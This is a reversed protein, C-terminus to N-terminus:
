SYTHEAQDPCRKIIAFTLKRHSPDGWGFVGPRWVIHHSGNYIWNYVHIPTTVGNVWWFRGIRGGEDTIYFM